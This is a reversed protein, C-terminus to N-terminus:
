KQFKRLLWLSHLLSVCAFGLALLGFLSNGMVLPGKNMVVFTIGISTLSIALVAQIFFYTFKRIAAALAGIDKNKTEFAFNNQSWRRLYQKFLRPTTELLFQLDRGVVLLDKVIQEKSYQSAFSKKALKTGISLLDFNPDLTKGLAELTVMAKFLMMLERPVQLKHKAAVATSRLLIVGIDVEGLAMGIYPSILDMLDKQLLQINYGDDNRCLNVYELALTEYDEDMLSIFMTTVSDRVRKSLRGVIGFDILGLRGDPLVFLNGAHFDGHFVGDQMVMHFFVDCGTEVVESPSINNAKIAEVNSVRFGDFREMTLVKSTSYDLYVKPVAVKKFTALNIGIRRMNNAEVRFDLEFTITRFFEDVIGTPNLIKTEPIYRELLLALGQLISIDNKIIKDIGPRQVKVAVREGTQLVAGHAQAISAAALPGQDFEQYVEYIPRGLEAEVQKKIVDFPLSSVRDQLKKFENVFNDPILDPRTALLQGLKVFTPGLQEFCLRLRTEIPLHKSDSSESRRSPLFRSLKMRDVIEAFGHYVFVTVIERVRGANKFTKTIVQATTLLKM